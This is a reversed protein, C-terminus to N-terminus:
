GSQLAYSDAVEGRHPHGSRTCDMISAHGTALVQGQLEWSFGADVTWPPAAGPTSSLAFGHGPVAEPKRSPTQGAAM